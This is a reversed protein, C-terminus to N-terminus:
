IDKRPNRVSLTVAMMQHCCTFSAFVNLMFLKDAVHPYGHIKHKSQRIQTDTHTKHATTSAGTSWNTSYSHGILQLQFEYNSHAM